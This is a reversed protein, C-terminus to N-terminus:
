KDQARSGALINTLGYNGEHCAYEFLPGPIRRYSLAGTWSRTWTNADNVTFEYDLRDSTVRTFREVVHLAESLVGSFRRIFARDNFNTTEVVLTEGDWAGRSDGAYQRIAPLSCCSLPSLLKMSYRLKKKCNNMFCINFDVQNNSMCLYNYIDLLFIVM